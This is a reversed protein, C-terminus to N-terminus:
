AKCVSSVCAESFYVRAVIDIGEVYSYKSKHRPVAVEQRHVENTESQIYPISSMSAMCTVPINSYMIMCNYHTHKNLM